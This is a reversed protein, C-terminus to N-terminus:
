AIIARLTEEIPTKGEVLRDGRPRVIGRGFGDLMEGYLEALSRTMGSQLLAPIRGEPPVQVLQVPKGLIRGLLAAVEVESAPPGLLDVNESRAPKHEIVEAVLAGVDKSAIRPLPADVNAMLSPYIGQAKVVPLVSAANEQCYGARISTVQAGTARLLNEQVHLGKIPGTGDALDAGVSSLFVVHGVGSAKVAAAVADSIARQYAPFDPAHLSPPILTFFGTAGKLARAVAAADDLSAVAVEAGRKSWETGKKPDRVIVRVPKSRELLATAAVSGVHGSVGAIVYM